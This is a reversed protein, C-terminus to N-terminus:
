GSPSCRKSRMPAVRDFDYEESLASLMRERYIVGPAQQSEKAHWGREAVSSGAREVVRKRFSRRAFCHRNRCLANLLNRRARGFYGWTNMTLPKACPRKKADGRGLRRRRSNVRSNWISVRCGDPHAFRAWGAQHDLLSATNTSNQTMKSLSASNV